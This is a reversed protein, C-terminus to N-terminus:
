EQPEMRQIRERAELFSEIAEDIEHVIRDRDRRSPKHGLDVVESIAAIAEAGERISVALAGMTSAAKRSGPLSVLVYGLMRAMFATILPKGNFQDIEVAVDVPAQRNMLATNAYDSFTAPRDIRDSVNAANEQGGALKVAKGVQVKINRRELDTLM